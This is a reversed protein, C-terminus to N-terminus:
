KPETFLTAYVFNPSSDPDSDGEYNDYLDEVGKRDYFGVDWFGDGDELRYLALYPKSADFTLNGAYGGVLTAYFVANSGDEGADAIDQRFDPGITDIKMEPLDFRPGEHKFRSNLYDNAVTQVKGLTDYGGLFQITYEGDDLSNLELLGIYEKKEWDKRWPLPHSDNWIIKREM